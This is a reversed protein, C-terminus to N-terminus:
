TEGLLNHTEFSSQTDLTFILWSIYIGILTKIVAMVFNGCKVNILLQLSNGAKMVLFCGAPKSFLLM